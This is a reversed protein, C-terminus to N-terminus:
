RKRGGGEWGPQGVFFCVKIWIIVAAPSFFLSFIPQVRRTSGDVGSGYESPPLFLPFLSLLLLLVRISVEGVKVGEEEARHPPLHHHRHSIARASLFCKLVGEEKWELDLVHPPPSPPLPARVRGGKDRLPLSTGEEEAKKADGGELCLVLSLNSRVYRVAASERSEKKARTHTHRGRM